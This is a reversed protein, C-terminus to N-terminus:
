LLDLIDINATKETDIEYYEEAMKFVIEDDIAVAREKTQSRVRDFIVSICKKLSKSDDLLKAAVNENTCLATLHEEIRIAFTNNIELMEDTIKAIAKNIM